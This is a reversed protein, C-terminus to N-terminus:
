GGPMQKQLFGKGLEGMRRTVSELDDPDRNQSLKSKALVRDVRIRIGTIANLMEDLYDAPAQKLSWPIAEGIRHEHLKTLRGVVGMIFKRDSLFEIRGYCHVAQYNWTPVFRHTKPKGPYWNPSIYSDEARFVVLASDGTSFETLLENKNAVHALLTMEGSENVDVLFPLHNAVLNGVGGMVLTALPYADIVELIVKRDNEVFREPLYM